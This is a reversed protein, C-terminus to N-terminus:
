IKHELEIKRAGNNQQSWLFIAQTEMLDLANRDNQIFYILWYPTNITYDNLSRIM